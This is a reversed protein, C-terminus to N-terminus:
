NQATTKETHVQLFDRFHAQLLKLDEAPYYFHRSRPLLHLTVAPADELPRCSRRSVLEDRHSQVAVTPITVQGIQQRGLKAAQFLELYRPIWGIYKWLKPTAHISCAKYAAQKEENCGRIGFAVQLSQATALLTLQPYLPCALLFLGQIAGCNRLSEDICFLTGMSHGVLLVRRHTAALDDVQQRVYSRWAAMSTHSFDTVSGGHGPLLLNVCSWDKPVLPLLDRFQDPTGVIGHIFLIATDANPVIRRLPQHAM